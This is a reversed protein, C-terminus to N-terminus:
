SELVWFWPLTPQLFFLLFLLQFPLRMARPCHNQKNLIGLGVVLDQSIEALKPSLVQTEVPGWTFVLVPPGRPVASQIARSQPGM